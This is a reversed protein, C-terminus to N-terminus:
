NLTAEKMVSSEKTTHVSAPYPVALGPPPDLTYFWDAVSAFNEAQEDHDTGCIKILDFPIWLGTEARIHAECLFRGITSFGCWWRDILNEDMLPIDAGNFDVEPGDM